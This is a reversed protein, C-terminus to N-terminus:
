DYWISEDDTPDVADIIGGVIEGPLRLIDGLFGM